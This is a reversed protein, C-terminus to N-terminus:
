SDAEADRECEHSVEKGRRTRFAVVQHATVLQRTLYFLMKNVYKPLASHADVCMKLVDLDRPNKERMTNLDRCEAMARLFRAVNERYALASNNRLRVASPEDALWRVDDFRADAAYSEAVPLLIVKVQLATECKMLADLDLNAHCLATTMSKMPMTDIASQLDAESLKKYNRELTPIRVDKTYGQMPSRLTACDDQTTVLYFIEGSTRAQYITREM